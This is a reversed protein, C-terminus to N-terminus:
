CTSISKRQAVWATMSWLLILIGTEQTDRWSPVSHHFIVASHWTSFSLDSPHQPRRPLPWLGRKSDAELPSTYGLVVDRLARTVRPTHEAMLLQPLRPFTLGLHSHIQCQPLHGQLRPSPSLTTPSGPSFCCSQFYVSNPESTGEPSVESKQWSPPTGDELDERKCGFGRFICSMFVYLHSLHPSSSLSSLSRWSWHIVWCHTGGLKMITVWINWLPCLLLSSDPVM